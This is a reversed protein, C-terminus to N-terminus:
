EIIRRVLICDSTNLDEGPRFGVPVSRDILYFGRHRVARGQDVGYEAGIGTAPDYEFFGLTVRVNYVNSRDTTLNALRSAPLNWVHTNHIPENNASLLSQGHLPRPRLLRNFMDVDPGSHTLLTKSAADNRRQMPFAFQDPAVTSTFVNVLDTPLGRNLHPNIDLRYDGTVPRAQLPSYEAGASATQSTASRYGQRHNVLPMAFPVAADSVRTNVPMFNGMLGQFVLKEDVTNLNVRGPERYTPRKNHPSRYAEGLLFSWTANAAPTPFTNPNEIKWADIWPSAVGVTELLIAAMKPRPLGSPLPSQQDLFNLALEELDLTHRFQPFRQQQTDPVPLSRMGFDQMLTGPESFSVNLMEYANVFDRNAFFPSEPTPVPAGQYFPHAVYNENAYPHTQPLGRLWYNHNLYGLTAFPVESASNGREPNVVNGGDHPYEVPLPYRFYDTSTADRESSETATRSHYSYFTTAQPTLVRTNEILGNHVIQRGTKQRSAFFTDNLDADPLNDEGSFVTLDISLWDVTIYPNFVAHWPRNPDALRQLVAASWAQETKQKPYHLNENEWGHQELFGQRSDNATMEGSDYVRRPAGAPPGVSLDYYGDNLLEGYGPAGNEPDGDMDGANINTTPRRYYTDEHPIPESINLGSFEIVADDDQGPDWPTPASAIMTVCSRLHPAIVYPPDATGGASQADRWTGPTNDLLWVQAWSFFPNQDDTGALEIRQNSPLHTRPVGQTKSGLYTTARPGVVLYQGGELVNVGAQFRYVRSTVYDVPPPPNMPDSVPRPPFAVNNITPDMTNEVPELNAFWLIRDVEPEPLRRRNNRVAAAGSGELDATNNAIRWRLGADQNGIQYTYDFYRLWPDDDEGYAQQFLNPQVPDTSGGNDDDGDDGGDDGGDGGDDNDPGVHPKLMLVRWVPYQLQNPDLAAPTVAGLNLALHGATNRTYLSGSLGPLLPDGEVPVNPLNGATSRPNFFELFLSGQPVRIQDYIVPNSGQRQMVRSDHFALSETILLEPQEVGFVVHEADPLWYRPVGGVVKQRFPYPDYPFRTMVSDADRYDVVNVAWQALIRSRREWNVLVQAAASDSMFAPENPFLYENIYTDNAADYRFPLVLQAMCYLHRALLQRSRQGPDVPDVWPNLPDGPDFHGSLQNFRPNMGDSYDGVVAGSPYQEAQPVTSLELPEDIDGNGNDDFGNGLPRNVNLPRNQRFELPFLERLMENNVGVTAAVGFRLQTVSAVLEVFSSVQQAQGNASLYGAPFAPLTLAVNRPSVSRLVEPQALTTDPRDLYMDNNADYLPRYLSLSGGAVLELQRPLMARDADNFRVLREWEAFSLMQDYPGQRLVTADYPDDILENLAALPQDVLIPNGLLDLAVGIRGHMSLPLGPMGVHRPRGPRLGHMRMNAPVLQDEAGRTLLRSVVDDIDAAGPKGPLNGRGHRKGFVRQAHLQDVFLHRLYIDGPGYGLGQPWERFDTVGSQANFNKYAYRNDNQDIRLSFTADVGQNQAGAANLDLKGDMDVTYYAALIKLLKGEPSTILPYNIDVWVSDAIGDGDNDVDWSGRMHWRLWADFAQQSVPANRQGWDFVLQPSAFVQGNQFQLAVGGTFSPNNQLVGNQFNTVRYSLPRAVARQMLELFSLFQHENMNALLCQNPALGALFNVVAPRHFAPSIDASTPTLVDAPPVDDFQHRIRTLAFNNYDGADYREDTDGTQVYGNQVYRNVINTHSHNPLVGDPVGVFPAALQNLPAAQNYNYPLYGPTPDSVLNGNADRHLGLGSANYVGANLLIPYPGAPANANPTRYLCAFADAASGVWERVSRTLVTGNVNVTVVRDLELDALDVVICYQTEAPENLVVQGIYRVIRLSQSQLPGDLFTVVRGTWADHHEPAPIPPDVRLPIKLYHGAFLQPRRPPNTGFNANAELQLPVELSGYLDELLSHRWVASNSDRTGRLIQKLAQDLLRDAPTGRQDQRAMAVSASRSHGAFVVYTVALFSFLSLMGLVVLLILGEHHRQSRKMM